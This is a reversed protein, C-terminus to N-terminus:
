RSPPFRLPVRGCSSRVQPLLISIWTGFERFLVWTKSAGTTQKFMQALAANLPDSDSEKSASDSEDNLGLADLDIESLSGLTGLLPLAEGTAPL